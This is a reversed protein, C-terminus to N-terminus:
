NLQIVQVTEKKIKIGVRVWRGHELVLAFVFVFIRVVEVIVFLEHSMFCLMYVVFERRQNLM